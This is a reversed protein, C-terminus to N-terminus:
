EHREMPVVEMLAGCRIEGAARLLGDYCEARDRGAAFVTCIPGGTSIREGHFPLDRAGWAFWREPDRFVVDRDAFVIAKGLREGGVLTALDVGPLRGECAALHVEFINIGRAREVVEMSATYRPNVELPYVTSEKLIFDLGNVGVLGFEGTIVQIVRQVQRSLDTWVVPGDGPLGLISGCYRFGEAGFGKDGVLQESIGLLRSEEGNAAFVASCPIGDVYEQLVYGPELPDGPAHFSVGHGGGSRVPKRLWRTVPRHAPVEGSLSVEPAPVGAAKLFSFVRGPDRVRRLVAAQNGLVPRGRSLRELVSPHNELNATYAVADFGLGRAASLLHRADYPLRLDRKISRVDCLMRLDFDGFHDAARIRHGLRSRRASEVFARASVGVILVDAM